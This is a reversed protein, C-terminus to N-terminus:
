MHRLDMGQNTQLENNNNFGMYCKTIAKKANIALVLLVNSYSKMVARKVKFIKSKWGVNWFFM